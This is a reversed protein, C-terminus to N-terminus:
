HAPALVAAECEWATGWASRLARAKRILLTLDYEDTYGLAGHIQLAVRSALHAARTCALKAAPLDRPDAAADGRVTLAAGYLLSAAFELAVAVDALQHKVAQFSGIPRGFQACQGAYLVSGELLARGVGLAQAATLLTLLARLRATDASVPQRDRTPAAECRVLHRTPDLSTFVMGAGAPLLADGDLVFVAGALHADVAYPPGAPRSAAVTALTRGTLLRDVLGREGESRWEGEGRKRGAQEEEAPRRGAREGEAWEGESGEGEGRKTGVREREAEQEEVQTGDAPRSSLAAALAVSEVLPGPAGTRGIETFASALEPPYWGMGGHQEDVALATLGTDALARWLERGPAHEGAAWARAAKLPEADVLLRRVTAAYARHEEDPVFRMTDEADGRCASCASPSSTASSRTPARTSRGRRHSSGATWGPPTSGPSSGSGSGAVPAGCRARSPAMDDGGAGEGDTEGAGGVAGATAGGAIEDVVANVAEGTIEDAGPGLLDLATEHLDIDLESWFIKNMSSAFPSAGAPAGAGAGPGVEAQAEANASVAAYGALQYARARIWADAVRAGTATDGLAGRERWLCTLRDASALFGGPSRLTLGRENGATSMAARWGQGAEGIVDADPVFVRDLFIEAFAPKGDLRGIPRVTVGEADLPFMLYSLGRHRQSAPDTRFLGFARDAFAARSSWTKQGSVLWGGGGHATREGYSRLSALDSGAEPESWAQAWITEGSAMPPLVRARQEQSGHAFLTPALLNIGNQSVRGPAGAAYYEEEFILWETHTAGRGGYETPWSVVSWDGDCLEREWGRHAAFGEPTELSPLREAPVHARLWARAEARFADEAASFELDM